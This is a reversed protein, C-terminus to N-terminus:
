YPQFDMDGDHLIVICAINVSMPQTSARMSIIYKVNLLMHVSQTVRLNQWAHAQAGRIYKYM